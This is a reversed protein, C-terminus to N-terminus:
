VEVGDHRDRVLHITSTTDIWPNNCDVFCTAFSSRPRLTEPRGHRVGRDILRSKVHLILNPRETRLTSEGDLPGISSFLLKIIQRSVYLPQSVRRLM